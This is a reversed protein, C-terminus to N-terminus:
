NKQSGFLFPSVWISLQHYVIASNILNMLILSLSSSISAGMIGFKPILVTNMMLSFLTIGVMNLQMLKENGTMMLLYGVSGTLVNVFQGIILIVLAMAGSKYESGFLSLFFQPYVLLPILLPLTLFTSLRSAHCSLQALEKRQSNAYLISFRPAVVSNVGTLFFTTLSAMRTTVGYIAVSQGDSWIGLMLIDISNLALNILAIGLFPSSKKLLMENSNGPISKVNPISRNWLYLSILAVLSSSAVYLFAASSLSLKHFLIIVLSYSLGGLFPVGVLQVFTAEGVKQIAKLMEGHLLFLTGPIIAVSM